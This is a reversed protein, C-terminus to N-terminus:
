KWPDWRQDDAEPVAHEAIYRVRVTTFVIPLIKMMTSSGSTLFPSPKFVIRYSCGGDM